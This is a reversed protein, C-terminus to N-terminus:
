RPVLDMIQPWVPLPVSWQLPTRRIFEEATALVKEANRLAAVKPDSYSDMEIPSSVLVHYREDKQLNVIAVIVPVRAKTALFVHHMPLAAPRGFFLPCTEPNPIPRDIGTVM